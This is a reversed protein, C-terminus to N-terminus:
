VGALRRAGGESLGPGLEAVPCVLCGVTEIASLRGSWVLGRGLCDAVYNRSKLHRTRGNIGSGFSTEVGTSDVGGILGVRRLGSLTLSQCRSRQGFCPSLQTGGQGGQTGDASGRRRGSRVQPDSRRTSAQQSSVCM